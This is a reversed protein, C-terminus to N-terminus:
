KAFMYKEDITFRRKSAPKNIEMRLYAYIAEFNSIFCYQLYEMNIADPVNVMPSLMPDRWYDILCYFKDDMRFTSYGFGSPDKPLDYEEYSVGYFGHLGRFRALKEDFVFINGPNVKMKKLMRVISKAMERAIAEQM